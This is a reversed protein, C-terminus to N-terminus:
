SMSGFSPDGWFRAKIDHGVGRYAITTHSELAIEQELGM